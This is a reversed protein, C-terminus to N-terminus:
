WKGTNIAFTKFFSLKTKINPLDMNFNNYIKSFNIKILSATYHELEIILPFLKKYLHLYFRFKNECALIYWFQKKKINMIINFEKNNKFYEDINKNIINAFDYSKNDQM